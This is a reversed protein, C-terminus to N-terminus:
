IVYTFTSAHIYIFYVHGSNIYKNRENHKYTFM